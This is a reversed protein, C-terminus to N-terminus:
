KPWPNLVLLSLAVVIALGTLVVPAAAAPRLRRVVLYLGAALLGILTVQVVCWVLAIGITNM